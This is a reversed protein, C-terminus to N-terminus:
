DVFDSLWDDRDIGTVKRAIKQELPTKAFEWLRQSEGCRSLYTNTARRLKKCRDWDSLWGLSPLESSLYWWSESPYAGTALANHVVFFNKLVLKAADDSNERLGISLLLFATPIRLPAPIAGSSEDALQQVDERSTVLIRRVKDSPACWVSLAFQAPPLNKTQALM